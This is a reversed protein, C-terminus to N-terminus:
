VLIECNAAECAQGQRAEARAAVVIVVVRGGCQRLAVLIQLFDKFLIDVLGDMGGVSGHRKGGVAEILLNLSDVFGGLGFAYCLGHHILGAIVPLRGALTILLALGEEHTRSGVVVDVRVDVCPREVQGSKVFCQAVIGQDLAVVGVVLIGIGLFGIGVEPLRHEAKVADLEDEEAVSLGALGILEVAIVGVVLVPEVEGLEGAFVLHDKGFSHGAVQAVGDIAKFHAPVLICRLAM